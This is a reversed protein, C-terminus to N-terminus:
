NFTLFRIDIPSTDGSEASRYCRCVIDNVAPVPAGDPIQIVFGSNRARSFIGFASAVDVRLLEKCLVPYEQGGIILLLESIKDRYHFIWGRIVAGNGPMVEIFDIHAFVGNVKAPPFNRLWYELNCFFNGALMQGLPLVYFRSHNPFQQIFIEARRALLRKFVRAFFRTM